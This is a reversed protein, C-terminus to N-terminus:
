VALTIVVFYPKRKATHMTNYSASVAYRLMRRMTCLFPLLTRNHWCSDSVEVDGFADGNQADHQPVANEDGIGRYGLRRERLRQVMQAEREVHRQEEDYRPIEHVGLARESAALFAALQQGGVPESRRRDDDDVGRQGEHQAGACPGREGSPGGRRVVAGPVHGAVIQPRHREADTRQPEQEAQEPRMEDHVESRLGGIRGQHDQRREDDSIKGRTDEPEREAHM